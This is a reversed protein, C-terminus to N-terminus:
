GNIIQKYTLKLTTNALIYNWRDSESYKRTNYRFVFENVYKQLHKRSVQHYLGIIGRKLHSWFGEIANSTDGNENVYEKARHDVVRHDYKACLGGYAYWEDSVLISDEKVHNRIIPQLSRRKTDPVVRCRVVSEKTVVKEVVVRNPIVKHPRMIKINEEEELMGMVPTKDKFSRGQSYKVKKDAHRNKNKGGVFTEDLQVTGEMEEEHNDFGLLVRIKQLMTWATKQTVGIDKGLQISSIGKKHSSALWIALFWKQLAVRTNDFITGTKANFYKGTNKCRFKDGKCEYVKSSEDFPSVVEGNWRLVALYQLCAEETPFNNILDLVSKFHAGIM